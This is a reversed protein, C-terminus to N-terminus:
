SELETDEERIFNTRKYPIVNAKRAFDNKKNKNKKNKGLIRNLEKKSIREEKL